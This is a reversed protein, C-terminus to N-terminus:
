SRSSIDPSAGINRFRHRVNPPLTITAGAELTFTEEGCWFQFRSSLVRFVEVERSHLHWPPGTDPAIVAEFAGVTGNTDTAKIIVVVDDGRSTKGNPPETPQRM